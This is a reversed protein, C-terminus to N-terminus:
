RESDERTLVSGPGATRIADALDLLAYVQATAVTLEFDEAPDERRNTGKRVRQLLRAAAASYTSDSHM